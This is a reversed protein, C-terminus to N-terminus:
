HLHFNEIKVLYWSRNLSNRSKLNIKWLRRHLMNEAQHKSFKKKRDTIKLYHDEIFCGIDGTHFWGDADIVEATLDPRNFYGKMVNPGKCLIEGDEAIMVKVGKIVPGVTGFASGRHELNNVAIVPSTETLGYGELVNIGASWFVRALRPQLAAGGSVIM